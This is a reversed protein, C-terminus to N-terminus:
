KILKLKKKKNTNFKVELLKGLSPVGWEKSKKILYKIRLEENIEQGCHNCLHKKKKTPKKKM